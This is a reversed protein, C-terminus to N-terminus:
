CLFVQAPALPNEDDVWRGGTRDSEVLGRPRKRDRMGHITKQDFASEWQVSFHGDAARLIGHQGDERRRQERGLGADDTPYRVEAIYSEHDLDELGESGLHSM